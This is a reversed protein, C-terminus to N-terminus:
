QRLADAEAGDLPDTLQQPNRGPPGAPLPPKRGIPILLGEVLVRKMENENEQAANTQAQLQISQQELQDAKRRAEVGLRLSGGGWGGCAGAGGRGVPRRGDPQPAGVQRDERPPRDAARRSRSRASVAPPGGGAGTRQRLATAAGQAPMESVRNGPRAAGVPET